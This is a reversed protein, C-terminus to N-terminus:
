FSLVMSRTDSCSRLSPSTPCIEIWCQLLGRRPKKFLIVLSNLHLEVMQSLEMESGRPSLSMTPTVHPSIPGPRPLVSLQSRRTPSSRWQKDAQARHRRHVTSKCTLGNNLYREVYCGVMDTIDAQEESARFLCVMRPTTSGCTPGSHCLRSSVRLLRRISLLLSRDRIGRQRRMHRQHRSGVRRHEEM